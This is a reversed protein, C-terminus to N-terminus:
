LVFEFDSFRSATAPVPHLSVKSQCEDEVNAAKALRFGDNCKGEKKSIEHKTM